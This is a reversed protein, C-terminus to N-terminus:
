GVVPIFRYGSREGGKRDTEGFWDPEPDKEVDPYFRTLKLVRQSRQSLSTQCDAGTPRPDIAFDEIHDCQRKQEGGSLLTDTEEDRSITSSLRPESM